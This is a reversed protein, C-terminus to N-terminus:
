AYGELFARTPLLEADSGLGWGRNLLEHVLQLDTATELIQVRSGATSVPVCGRLSMSSDPMAILHTPLLPHIGLDM